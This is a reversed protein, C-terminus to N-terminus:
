LLWRASTPLERAAITQSCTAKQALGCLWSIAVVAVVAGVVVAFYNAVAAPQHNVFIRNSCFCLQLFAFFGFPKLFMKLNEIGQLRQPQIPIGVKYSLTM